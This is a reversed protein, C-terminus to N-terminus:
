TYLTLHVPVLSMDWASSQAEDYRFEVKGVDHM